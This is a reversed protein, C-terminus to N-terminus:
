VSFCTYDVTALLYRFFSSRVHSYPRVRSGIPAHMVWVCEVPKDPSFAFPAMVDSDSVFGQQLTTDVEVRCYDESM